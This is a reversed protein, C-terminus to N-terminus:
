GVESELRHCLEALLELYDALIRRVTEDDPRKEARRLGAIRDV